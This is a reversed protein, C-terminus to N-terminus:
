EIVRTKCGFVLSVNANSGAKLRDCTAPCTVVRTPAATAPDVDYYWGGQMPDCRNPATVYPIPVVLKEYSSPQCILGGSPELCHRAAPQCVDGRKGGPCPQGPPYCPLQSLAGRAADVCMGGKGTGSLADCGYPGALQDEPCQSGTAHGEVVCERAVRCVTGPGCEMDSQCSPPMAIREGARGTGPFLQLGVGLGASAPDKVFSTLAETVMDGKSRPDGPVKEEMSSSSDLLLLLDVPLRQAQHVEM